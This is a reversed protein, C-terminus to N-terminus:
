RENRKKELPKDKIIENVNVHINRRENNTSFYCTSTVPAHSYLTAIGLWDHSFPSNKFTIKEDDNNCYLVVLTQHFKKLSFTHNLKDHHSGNECNSM